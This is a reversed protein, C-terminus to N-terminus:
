RVQTQEARPSTPKAAPVATKVVPKTAPDNKARHKGTGNSM